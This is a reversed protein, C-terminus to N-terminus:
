VTAESKDYFEALGARHVSLNNEKEVETMKIEVTDHCYQFGIPMLLKHTLTHWVVKPSLKSVISHKM